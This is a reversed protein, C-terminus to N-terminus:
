PSAEQTPLYADVPVRIEGTLLSSLLASKLAQLAMWHKMNVLLREGISDHMAVIQAQEDPSPLGVLWNTLEDKRLHVLSDKFGHARKEVKSTLQLLLLYLFKTSTLSKAQIRHIHQNLLGRPGSWIFPGFSSGRSGAWAFLLDGPEVMWEPKIPGAFYNFDSSGNLNQIRIIPIGESEWDSPSFGTGGSFDGLDSIRRVEWGEPVEGIETQKLRTHRGPIGRTLLEEMMAKKVTQLQDIVAQTAAITDDVSVLITAIKHQESLPPLPIEANLFEEPSVRRAKRSGIAASLMGKYFEPRTIYYLLWSPDVPGIIDFCPLDITSERGDLEPPIIGFAGNLFDLKSYILQGARRRYYRTNESGAMRDNKGVVGKGYLKVSLKKGVAGNTGPIRSEALLEAIRAARWKEITM